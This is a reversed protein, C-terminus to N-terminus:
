EGDKKEPEKGHNALLIGGIILIAGIFGMLHIPENLILAACVMTIFPSLFIYNNTTVAGLRFVAMNWLIYCVASGLLGLFLLCFLRYPAKLASLPFAGGERWLIPLATLIGWFAIRRALFFGDYRFTYKRLIITYIAWSLAAAVALLDGRPSLKLIVAGNFIVLTVGFFAILAGYVMQRHLKEDPTFFHALVATFLPASSLIISVNSTLTYTLATNELMFCLSNGFFGMCLFALETKLSVRVAHPYILWLVCYALIFRLLMIQVPTYVSLMYKSAIFTAGWVLITFLACLHAAPLSIKRNM